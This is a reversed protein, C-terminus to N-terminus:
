TVPLEGAPGDAVMVEPAIAAALGAITPTTIVTSPAVEVGLTDRVRAILQAATLSHGGHAFFDDHVGVAVHAAIGLVERWIAALRRELETRPAVTSIKQRGWVPEPLAARDLRGAPTVPLTNLTVYRSPLLYDPLRAALWPRLEAMTIRRRAVLYAVLRVDEDRVTWAAAAADRISEHARLVAEVEGLEVRHGRVRVRLDARGLLELGDRRRRVLDGTAYVRAGPEARCPDPRFREATLAPRDHYGRVVGAGGVHLEGVVGDPVPAMASDLVHLATGTVPPGLRIPGSGAVEGLTSYVSTETSGYGALVRAGGARLADALERSVPEGGCIRLRVPAPVGGAAVLSRWVPPTAQVVTAGALALRERLLSGDMPDAVPLVVVAAGRRAAVLLEPLSMDCSPSHLAAVRDAPSLDLVGDVHSLLNGTNGHTLAVGDPRGTAGSTYLLCALSDPDPPPIDPPGAPRTALLGRVAPDDLDLVRRDGPLEVGAARHTVLVPTHGDTVMTALRHLPWTPDLPLYGAGARWAALIGVVMTAGRTLCLAVPVNPGAGNDRLLHALRNAAADLQRYTLTGDPGVVAPADGFRSLDPRPTRAEAAPVAAPVAVPTTPVQLVVPPDTTILPLEAIPRSPDAVASRLAAAYTEALNAITERDFLDTDYVWRASWRDPGPVVTLALDVVSGGVRLAAPAFTVGDVTTVTPAPEVDFLTQVVPMHAVTRRPALLDVLQDFPLDQHQYARAVSAETRAALEAFTTGATIRAPLALTNALYGVLRETGPGTRGPMRTGVLFAPQGSLRYLVAQYVALLTGFSADSAPELGSVLEDGRGSAIRHPRDTPLALFTPVGALEGTWFRAADAYGNAEAQERQWVAYDPYQLEPTPLREGGYCRALEDFLLAVSWRDAIARHTAFVLVHDRPSRRLLGTRLLPGTGLDFPERALDDVDSERLATLPVRTRAAVVQVPVGDADAFTTRLAEHRGVLARLAAALKGTDLPGTLHVRWAHQLAPSHPLLRDLLWLRRQGSSTPFFFVGDATPDV